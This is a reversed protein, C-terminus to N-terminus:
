PLAEGEREGLQTRADVTDSPRLEGVRMLARRLFYPGLAEGFLASAAAFTLVITGVEGGLRLSLAMGMSITVVGSSLLGFGLTPGAPRAAPFSLLLLGCLWKALLRGGLAAAILWPAGKVATADVHAGALVLVPLMVPAETKALIARLAVKHRTTASLTLGTVFLATIGALGLQVCVGTGLLTAGLLFSTAEGRHLQDGMLATCTLGLVAGLGLTIGLWGWAPLEVRGSPMPVLVFLVAVLLLAPLEDSDALAAIWRSLPGDAGHREFVWRVAVRTTETGTAAVAAALLLRERDPLPWLWGIAWYVGTGVLLTTFLALSVSALLTVLKRESSQVVGWGIGAILALWSTGVQLMPEFLELTGTGLWRLVGPGLIWGLVLYESGSPLGYGRISRGGMLISGLYAVVMLALFASM